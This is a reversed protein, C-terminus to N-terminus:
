PGAPANSRGILPFAAGGVVGGGQSSSAVGGGSHPAILGYLQRKTAAWDRSMCEEMNADFAAVTQQQAEQSCDAGPAASHVSRTRTSWRLPASPPRGAMDCVREPGVQLAALITSEEIQQLYEEVSSTDAHFVDEYTPQIELSTVEQTLRRHRGFWRPREARCLWPGRSSGM